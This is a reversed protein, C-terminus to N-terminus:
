FCSIKTGKDLVLILTGEGVIVSSRKGVFENSVGLPFRNTLEADELEYKLGKLTVGSCRDTHSFVSLFGQEEAGFAMTGCSLATIVQDRDVLVGRMGAEALAALTQINALTHDFRGGTCGYLWFCRCGREKGLEIAAWTDTIDKVRPLVVVEDGNPIHGLSDFDGIVLDPRIGAALVRDLGGDAAIVLDGERPLFDLGYDEGAGVIYCVADNQM